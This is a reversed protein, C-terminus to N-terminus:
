SAPTDPAQEATATRGGEDSHRRYPAIRDEFGSMMEGIISEPDAFLDWVEGARPERLPEGFRAVLRFRDVPSPHTDDETTKRNLAREFDEEISVGEGLHVEYLNQLPRRADIAEKIERDAATTFELDRRIIHRLGGELALAGYSQAAVRDALIEQLRTAGHSIRRFLFNYFRLFHFALNLVTAQGADYMALYFKVMDNRVRLGIDGGATDRHSFHGYEHALVCRFDDQRFGHLVATGLILVRRAKNHMKQRWTGQEYVALETGSTIRIEDIPRADLTRAVEETLLWLGEAEERKLPRGPDETKVKLFLSRTMAWITVLAGIVLIVLLKIPIWGIVMFGYIVAGTTAILLVLVVPLSLYYYVGSINLVLRYLGRLRREGPSVTQTADIRGAQRMTVRSLAFGVAFLVALGVAWAGVLGLVVMAIRWGNARSGVGADLFARVTEQPLGLQGAIRIEREAKLWHQDTAEELATFYHTQMLDPYEQRLAAVAERFPPLRDLELSLQATAMLMGADRGSPLRACRAFLDAAEAKERLPIEETSVFGLSFALNSLNAATSDLAVAKRCWELGEARKGNRVMAGGLRRVAADFTPVQRCVQALIREAEADNGNDLAIRAERFAQVQGPDIAALAQEIEGEVVMDRDGPAAWVVASFFVSALIWLWRKMVLGSEDFAMKGIRSIWQLDEDILIRTILPLLASLLDSVGTDTRLGAIGGSEGHTDGAM